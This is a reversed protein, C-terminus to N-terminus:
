KRQLNGHNLLSVNALPTFIEAEDIYFLGVFKFMQRAQNFFVVILSSCYFRPNGDPDGVATGDIASVTWVNNYDVRAPSYGGTHAGDNGPALAIYVGQDALNRIAGDLADSPGGGLNLNAVDGSSANAAVYDVSVIVGSYTGSGNSNLM